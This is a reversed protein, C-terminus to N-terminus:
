PVSVESETTAPAAPASALREKWAKAQQSDPYREALESAITRAEDDRKLSVLTSIAHDMAAPVIEPDDFLIYVANDYRLASEADGRALAARALAATARARVGIFDPGAARRAADSLSAEAEDANGADLLLEGLRLAAEPAYKSNVDIKLADRYASIAAPADGAAHRARALLVFGAQRWVPDEGADLLAQAALASAAFDGREFQFQALWDLNEPSFKEKAASELLPQLLAAADDARGQSRAIQGLLFMSEREIDRSPNSALVERLLRQAEADDGADHYIMGRWFSVDNRRENGPFRRIFTDLATAAADKRGARVDAMARQYLAEPVRGDDPFRTILEQWDRIAEDDRGAISLCCASAFLAAPVLEHAPFKDRFELYSASAEAWAKQEQLLNALRYLAHPAFPSDPARRILQRYRQVAGPPDPLADAAQALVWLLDDILDAPPNDFRDGEALAEANRGDRHLTQIREYRAFPALTSDPYDKLLTAYDALADARMELRNAARARLCLVNPAFDGGRDPSAIIETAIRRAEVFREADYCATAANLRSATARREGPYKDVLELYRTAAEDTEGRSEALRALRFIAESAIPPPAPRDAIARFLARAEAVATDDGQAAKTEAIRMSASDVLDMDKSITRVIGYLTSATAKDGSMFFAEAANFLAIERLTPDDTADAALSQLHPAAEAARGSDLEALGIQLRARMGDPSKPAAEAAARYAALAEAPRNMKRHCEGLRYSLADRDPRAPDAALIASYEKAAMDFLSRKFLGDALSTSDDARAFAAIAFSAALSAAFLTNRNRNM